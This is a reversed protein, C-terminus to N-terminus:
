SRFCIKKDKGCIEISRGHLKPPIDIIPYHKRSIFNEIPGSVSESDLVVQFNPGANKLVVIKIQYTTSGKVTFGDQLLAKM